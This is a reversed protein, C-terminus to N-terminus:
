QSCVRGRTDPNLAGASGEPGAEPGADTRREQRGCKMAETNLFDLPFLHSIIPFAPFLRSPKDSVRSFRRNRGAKEWREPLAVTGTALAPTGGASNPQRIRSELNQM